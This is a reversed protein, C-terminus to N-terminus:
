TKKRFYRDSQDPLTFRGDLPSGTLILINVNARRLLAAIAMTRRIHGPGFTDHSHMHINFTVNRVM